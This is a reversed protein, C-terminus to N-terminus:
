TLEFETALSQIRRCLREGNAYEARDSSVYAGDTLVAFLEYIDVNKEREADGGETSAQAIANAFYYESNGLVEIEYITSSINASENTEGENEALEAPDTIPEWWTSNNLANNLNGAQKSRYVLKNTADFVADYLAYTTGTDYDPVIVFPIRTWGDKTITITWVTDLNPDNNNGVSTLTDEVTSDYKMKKAKLYCGVASRAPTTYTSVDTITISTRDSSITSYELEATPLSM